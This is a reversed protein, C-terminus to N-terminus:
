EPLNTKRLLAKFRPDSSLEKAGSDLPALKLIVLSGSHERYARDWWLFARDFDKRSAYLVGIEFPWKASYKSDAIALARDADEKRGVGYLVRPLTLERETDDAVRSVEALAADHKGEALLVLALSSHLGDANPQLEVAKRYDAESEALKGGYYEADGLRMYNYYNVPDIVTAKKAHEIGEDFRGLQLSLYFANRAVDASAPDLELARDTERQAGQWNWDITLVRAMAIHAEAMLPDIKLAREAAGHAAGRVQAYTGVGNDLYNAVYARSLTAWAPAFDSNLHTSQELYEIAKSTGSAFGATEFLSRGQLYITYAESGTATVSRAVPADLLSAKLAKVVAIAIEDQVVLVDTMQRDYTESWLHYGNDARVLQATVRLHNGSRRVSGELVNAVGLERAIDPIKTPKGKFYFSSTRAPVRLDPIKVLLDIIEEAMGDSFYEQDRKESMDAFPLVAVSKDTIPIAVLASAPLPTTAPASTTAVPVQKSHFLTVTMAALLMVAVAVAVIWLRKSLSRSLDRKVVADGGNANARPVNGFSTDIPLKEPSELLRRVADVLAPLARETPEASADLWHSASLFYELGTPLPTGDLRFAVLSRRKASAREVERLVHQSGASNLSLVVVLVRASNIAQVIADAYFAGPTVDRPAIWCVIGDRELAACIGDAATKDASAYSIFVDAAVHTVQAAPERPSDGAPKGQSDDDSL